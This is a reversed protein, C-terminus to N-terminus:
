SPCSRVPEGVRMGKRVLIMALGVGGYVLLFPLVLDTVPLILGLAIVLLQFGLGMTSVATMFGNPLPERITREGEIALMLRDFAGYCLVYLRHLVAVTRANEYPFAQPREFENISSTTDGGLLRRQNLYYYNYITGQFELSLFALVAVLLSAETVVYLAGVVGLNILFDFVSDLYRGTHSPRQRVRAMEGDAADLTNKLMLLVAAVVYQGAVICAISAAGAVFFALTLQISTVHTGRLTGVLWVAVPRSFDSLDLFRHATPLKSM